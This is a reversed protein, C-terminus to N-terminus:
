REFIYCIISWANGNEIKDTYTYVGEEITADTLARLFKGKKNEVLYVNISKPQEHFKLIVTYQDIPRDKYLVTSVYCDKGNEIISNRVYQYTYYHFVTNYQVRKLFNFIVKKSTGRPTVLTPRIKTKMKPDNKLDYAYWDAKNIDTIDYSFFSTSFTDCGKKDCCLGYYELELIADTGIVECIHTIKIPNLRNRKPIFLPFSDSEEIRIGEIETYEPIRSILYCVCSCIITIIVGCLFAVINTVKNFASFATYIFSIIGLISSVFEIIGKIAKL